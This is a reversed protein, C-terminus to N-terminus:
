EMMVHVVTIMPAMTKTASMTMRTRKRARGPSVASGGWIRPAVASSIAHVMPGASANSMM